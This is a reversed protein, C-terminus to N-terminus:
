ASIQGPPLGLPLFAISFHRLKPLLRDHDLSCLPELVAVVRVVRFPWQRFARVGPWLFAADNPVIKPRIDRVLPETLVASTGHVVVTPDVRKLRTVTNARAVPDGGADLALTVGALRVDEFRRIFRNLQVSRSTAAYCSFSIFKLNLNLRPSLTTTGYRPRM